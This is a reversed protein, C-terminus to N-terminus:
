RSSRIGWYIKGFEVRMVKIVTNRDSKYDIVEFWSFFYKKINLRNCFNVWFDNMFSVCVLWEVMQVLIKM